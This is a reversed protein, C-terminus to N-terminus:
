YKVMIEREGATIPVITERGGPWRVWLRNPARTAGLVQVVSNQSWYGSGAQVERVPGKWHDNLLRMQTGIGDRNTPPGILRVRWGPQGKINRYLKTEGGNQAIALDLRGDGDFDAMAAGRQEGHVRIGSEAASQPSFGGKGDGRLWLGLGADYRGTEAENAFFNQSLVIDEHGDGDFDGVLVGFAPTWQAEAPLPRAEFQNGRNLFVMSELHSAELRGATAYAKGLIENIGAVGFAGYTDFRTRLAPLAASVRGFHQWPVWKGLEPDFLSELPDLRGDGNFDGHYLRLPWERYPEYKHNTGWNSAVLDIRGDGDLDGAAVGNWWGTYRDLGWAATQERWQGQEWGYVRVPGWECALVLEPRGDGDLDTWVAGSVMGAEALVAGAREDERWHGDERRYLKGGGGQPYNGGVVRSGVFLELHGDGDMDGLALPGASWPEADVVERLSDAGWQYEGVMSGTAQGDEYNSWGVLVRRQGEEDVWGAVGSQDRWQPGLGSIRAFGNTGGRNRYVGLAGGRGSGIVLDEHGDGDVDVWGLGPGLQSLRRPLLPQRAFDDYPEEEHRHELWSSVEVFHPEPPTLSQPREWQERTESEFVEYLHDSQIGDIRSLLGSRWRVELSMPRQQRNGAFVRMAQDGSLYRGGSIMEQSQEPVAGGRLIIRAGIGRTNGGQGRLRVAVRPALTENRYLLPGDNLCNIVVDLDGDGDLDALAMGQSVRTSDFGWAAGVEEFTLDGRNRFVFNPTEHRPFRRRLKLAELDPLRHRLRMREIEDALDIDQVDREFGTPILLDEYGDLDVDLFVPGWSWESAYLGALYALEAFEGDGRNVFFMNRVYQPRLDAGGIPHLQPMHGSVQRMRHQHSRSIMDTQFMDDLGDRNVDAFDIGMSFYATKRLMFPPAEQFTGDGRNLWIRDDSHFDNCVYLDPHGDGNLDRFVASLGWDFPARALPRGASDRFAGTSFPIVTFRGTGDNRYLLDVEGHEIPVGQPSITYRGVLDPETVPRGDVRTVVPQGGVMAVSLRMSFADRMTSSRYNAVYLDLHGDGDIDALTMSTAGREARLGAERSTERFRGHGDNLFLRTGTGIGNVLLDLHGNGNVDAFNAATSLQDACAAPGLDVEAFRWNGLNRYLRNPGELCALYIDVRGDGDADGLAVGSGNLYIHNTLSAWESLRNTFQIGTHEQPMPTFGTKGEFPLTLRAVRHGDRIEWPQADALSLTLLLLLGLGLPRLARSLNARYDCGPPVGLGAPPSPSVRDKRIVRECRYPTLHPHSNM